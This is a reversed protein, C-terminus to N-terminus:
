SFISIQLRITVVVNQLKVSYMQASVHKRIGLHIKFLQECTWSSQNHRVMNFILISEQFDDRILYYILILCAHQKSGIHSAVSYMEDSIYDIFKPCDM